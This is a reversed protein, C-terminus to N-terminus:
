TPPTYPWDLRQKKGSSVLPIKKRQCLISLDCSLDPHKLFDLVLEADLDSPLYRATNDLVPPLADDVSVVELHFLGNGHKEIGRVKKEGSGNQQFVIIKQPSNQKL